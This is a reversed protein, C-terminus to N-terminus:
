ALRLFNHDLSLTRRERPFLQLQRPQIQLTKLDHVVKALFTRFNDAIKVQVIQQNEGLNNPPDYEEQLRRLLINEDVCTLICWSSVQFNRPRREESDEEVRGYEIENYLNDAQTIAM